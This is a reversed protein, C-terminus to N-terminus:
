IQPSIPNKRKTYHALVCSLLFPLFVTFLYSTASLGQLNGTSTSYLFSQCQTTSLKFSIVIKSNKFLSSIRYESDLLIVDTVSKFFPAALGLLLKKLSFMQSIVQSWLLFYNMFYVASRVNDVILSCPFFRFKCCSLLLGLILLTSELYTGCIDICSLMLQPIWNYQSTCLQATFIKLFEDHIPWFRHKNSYQKFIIELFVSQKKFIM